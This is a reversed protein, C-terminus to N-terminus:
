DDGRKQVDFVCEGDAYCREGRSYLVGVKGERCRM